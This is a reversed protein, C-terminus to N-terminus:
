KELVVSAIVLKSSNRIVVGNSSRGMGLDFAADVNIKIQDKTPPEWTSRSTRTPRVARPEAEKWTKVM